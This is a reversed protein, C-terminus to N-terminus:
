ICLLRVFFRICTPYTPSEHDFTQFLYVYRMMMLPYYVKERLNFDRKKGIFM